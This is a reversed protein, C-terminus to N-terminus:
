KEKAISDHDTVTLRKHSSTTNLKREKIKRSTKFRHTLRENLVDVFDYNNVRDVWFIHNLDSLNAIEKAISLAVDFAVKNDGTMGYKSLSKDIFDGDVISIVEIVNTSPCRGLPIWAFLFRHSLSKSYLFDDNKLEKELNGPQSIKEKRKNASSEQRVSHLNDVAIILDKKVSSIHRVRITSVSGITDRALLQINGRKFYEITLIPYETNNTAETLSFINFIWEKISQVWDKISM